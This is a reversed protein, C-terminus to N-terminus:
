LQVIADCPAQMSAHMIFDLRAILHLKPYDKVLLMRNYSIMFYPHM